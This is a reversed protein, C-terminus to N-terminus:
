NLIVNMFSCCAQQFNVAQWNTNVKTTVKNVIGDADRLCFMWSWFLISQCVLRGPLCASNVM